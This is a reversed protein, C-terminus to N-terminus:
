SGQVVVIITSCTGLTVMMLQRAAVTNPATLTYTRMADGIQLTNRLTTTAAQPLTCALSSLQLQQHLFALQDNFYVSHLLSHPVHGQDTLRLISQLGVSLAHQYLQISAAVPVVPDATGHLVYLAAETATIQLTVHVILKVFSSALV